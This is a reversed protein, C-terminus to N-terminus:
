FAFINIESAGHTHGISIEMNIIDMIAIKLTIFVYLCYIQVHCLCVCVCVKEKAEKCVSCTDLYMFIM